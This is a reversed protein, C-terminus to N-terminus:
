GREFPAFHLGMAINICIGSLHVGNHTHEIRGFHLVEGVLFREPLHAVVRQEAETNVIAALVVISVAYLGGVAVAFHEVNCHAAIKIGIHRQLLSRDLNTNPFDTLFGVSESELVM